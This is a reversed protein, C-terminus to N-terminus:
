WPYFIPLYPKRRPVNPAFRSVRVGRVFLDKMEDVFVQIYPQFTKPECPGPVVFLLYTYERMSRMHLPLNGMRLFGFLTSYSRTEFMQGGDVSLEIAEGCPSSAIGCYEADVMGALPSGHFAAKPCKDDSAMAARFAPDQWATLISEEVGFYYFAQQLWCIPWNCPRLLLPHRCFM